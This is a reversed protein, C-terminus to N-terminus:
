DNGSQKRKMKRWQWPPVPSSRSWLGLKQQQAIRELAAWKESKDFQKYHWVMGNRLMEENINIENVYVLGVIRGYRDTDKKEVKIYKSFILESLKQKAQTSFDQGKEPADVGYLRIRLTLNGNSLLKFTDGDSIGVVKGELLPDVRKDTNSCSFFFLLISLVGFSRAIFFPMKGFLIFFNPFNQMLGQM